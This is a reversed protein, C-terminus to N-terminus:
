KNDDKKPEPSVVGNYGSYGWPNDHRFEVGIDRGIKAWWGREEAALREYEGATYKHTQELLADMARRRASTANSKDAMGKPVIFGDGLKKYGLSKAYVEEETIKQKPKTTM